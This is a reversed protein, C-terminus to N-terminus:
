ALYYLATIGHIIAWITDCALHATIHAPFADRYKNKAFKKTEVAIYYTALSLLFFCFGDFVFNSILAASLLAIPSLYKNDISLALLTICPIYASTCKGTIFAANSGIMGLMGLFLYPIVVDKYKPIDKYTNLTNFLGENVIPKTEEKLKNIEKHLLLNHLLFILGSIILCRPIYGSPFPFFHQSSIIGIGVMTGVKNAFSYKYQDGLSNTQSLIDVFIANILILSLVACSYSYISLLLMVLLAYSKTKRSISLLTPM